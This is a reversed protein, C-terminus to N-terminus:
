SLNSLMNDKSDFYTDLINNNRGDNLCLLIFFLFIGMCIIGIIFGVCFYKNRNEIYPDLQSNIGMKAFIFNIIKNIL